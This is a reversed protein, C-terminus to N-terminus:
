QAFKVRVTESKPGGRNIAGKGKGILPESEGEGGGERHSDNTGCSYPVMLSELGEHRTRVHM